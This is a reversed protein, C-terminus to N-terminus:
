WGVCAGFRFIRDVAARIPIWGGDSAVQRITRRRIRKPRQVGMVAGSSRHSGATVDVAAVALPIRGSEHGTREGGHCM